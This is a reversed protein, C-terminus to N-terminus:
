FHSGSLDSAVRSTPTKWQCFAYKFFHIFAFQTGKLYSPVTGTDQWNSRTCRSLAQHM